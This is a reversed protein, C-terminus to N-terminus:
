VKATPPVAYVGSREALRELIGTAALTKADPKPAQADPAVAALAVLAAAVALTTSKMSPIRRDRGRRHWLQGGAIERRRDGEIGQDRQREARRRRHGAHGCQGGARSRESGRAHLGQWEFFARIERGIQRVGRHM